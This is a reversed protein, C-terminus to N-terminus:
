KRGPFFKRVLSDIVIKEHNESYLRNLEPIGAPSTINIEILKDDIVDIGVFFLGLRKLIPKLCRCLQYERKTLRTSLDAVYHKSDGGLTEPTPPRIFAGIPKGNVLLIRKDGETLAAPLYEQLMIYASENDRIKKWSKLNPFDKASLLRIGLSARQHLPKLVAKKQNKLFEHLLGTQQTVITKPIYKEFELSFLKENKIMLSHPNNLVRTSSPVMTLLQCTQIYSKDVPPDKRMWILNLKGASLTQKSLFRFTGRKFNLVFQSAECFLKGSRLYLQSPQAFYVKWKRKQCEQALVLTTDWPMKIKNPSDIIFLTNM